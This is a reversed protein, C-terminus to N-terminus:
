GRLEGLCKELMEVFRLNELDKGVTVRICSPFGYARMSRIIVGKHLLAEYLVDADMKVDVLIFNGQTPYSICNLQKFADHLYAIGQRNKQLILRCHNDDELAAKAGVQALTNVNFPQRVKHLCSALSSNMIGYGIRLGALGYAKSFTRIFVVSCRNTTNRILSAADPRLNEDMFDAYAEDIVVVVHEPVTSLFVYLDNPSIATGMPNNPNDIFILRTKETIKNIITHLDHSMEKLPIIHNIGGRIQVFKQYMLFSPHSTIVEDGTKVFSKVLFEILENSGNGVVIEEKEVGYKAAISAMLDHCAADPYRNIGELANTIAEIIKPSPSYPNENSAIKVSRSIGYERELEEQSKGPQYPEIEQINEPIILKM